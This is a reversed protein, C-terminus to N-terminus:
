VINSIEFCIINETGYLITLVERLAVVREELNDNDDEVLSVNGEKESTNEKSSETSPAYMVSQCKPEM